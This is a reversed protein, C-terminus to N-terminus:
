SSDATRTDESPMGVAAIATQILGQPVVVSWCHFHTAGAIREARDLETDVAIDAASDVQVLSRPTALEVELWPGM